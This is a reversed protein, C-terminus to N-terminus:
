RDSRRKPSPIRQSKRRPEAARLAPEARGTRVALPPTSESLLAITRRAALEGGLRICEIANASESAAPFVLLDRPEVDLRRALRDLVDLSPLRQGSEIRSLYGKSRLDADWALQEQTLEVEDRLQAIRRGLQRALTSRRTAM